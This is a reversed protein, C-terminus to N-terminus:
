SFDLKKAWNHAENKLQVFVTEYIEESRKYPDPIELDSNWHGFLMVKGMAFPVKELINAVHSFEMALVLDNKMVLEPTLLQTTHSSIDVDHRAAVDIAMQDAGRNRPAMLGASDINAGPLASDLLVHATPSRCMNGVCVVLISNVHM